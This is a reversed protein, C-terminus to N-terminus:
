LPGSPNPAMYKMMISNFLDGEVSAYFAPPNNESPAAYANGDLTTSAAKVDSVWNDFDAGSVSKAAFQMGAYGAGNIETDKGVYEGTSDAILNLDTQMAAMAYIQSGLQPIWFSGMPSDMPGDATLEFHVPTQEPFELFNVAAIGQEPYIFLWKWPLAVVQVVLPPKGNEIQRYPDLAHAANWTFVALVAILAAPVLWLVIEKWPRHKLETEYKKDPNGARYKWAITFAFAFVPVVIILMLLVMLEILHIQQAAVTGAPMFLAVVHGGMLFRCLVVAAFVAAVAILIRYYINM